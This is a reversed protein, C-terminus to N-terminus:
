VSCIKKALASPQAFIKLCNEKIHNEDDGNNAEM